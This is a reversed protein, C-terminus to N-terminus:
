QEDELVVVRNITSKRAVVKGISIYSDPAENLAQAVAVPDHNDATTTVTIGDTYQIQIKM